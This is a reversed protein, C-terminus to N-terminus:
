RSSSIARLFHPAFHQLQIQTRNEALKWPITQREDKQRYYDAITNHFWDFGSM